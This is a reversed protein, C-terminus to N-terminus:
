NGPRPSETSNPPVLDFYIRDARVGDRLAASRLRGAERFGAKELVRRSAGNGDVIWANLAEIGLEHFATDVLLRLAGTAIGRGGMERAGLVYWVMAIRDVADWDALAVLGCPRGQHRVLFFRNRKNRMAVGLVVPDVVRGRWDSTLWRNIEPHSLWAAVTAVHEATLPEIATM